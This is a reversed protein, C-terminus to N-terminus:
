AHTVRASQKRANADAQWFAQPKKPYLALAAAYLSVLTSPSYYGQGRIAHPRRHGAHLVALATQEWSKGQQRLLVVLDGVEREKNCPVLARDKKIWGFPRANGYAVGNRRMYAWINKQRMGICNSEYEACSALVGFLLRGESTDLDCGIDLFYVKVGLKMWASLTNHADKSSRFARDLHTLIVWDGARLQDWLKKGAKRNAVEVKKGSVAEDLYIGGLDWGKSKIYETLRHEQNDISNGQESTSVRGYGFARTM